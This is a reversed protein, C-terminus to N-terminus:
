FKNMNSRLDDSLASYNGASIKAKITDSSESHRLNFGTIDVNRSIIKENRIVTTMVQHAVIYLTSAVNAKAGPNLEECFMVYREIAEQISAAHITSVVFMSLSAKLVEHATVGDRIEGLLFSSAGMRFAKKTASSYTENGSVELQMCRGEGHRGKLLTEAPDEISVGLDGTVEIRRKLIAAATTTKGSGMAGAILVLGTANKHDISARLKTSLQIDKLNRVGDPTQRIVFNVGGFLDATVTVRYLRMDHLLSFETRGTHRYFTMCEQTLTKCDEILDHPVPVIIKDAGTLGKIEAYDEGVYLDIFDNDKLLQM